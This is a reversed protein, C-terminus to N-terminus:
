EEYKVTITIIRPGDKTVKGWSGTKIAAGTQEKADKLIYQYDLDTFLSECVESYVEDTACRLYVYRKGNQAAEITQKELIDMAEDYTTAYYGEMIHFNLDMSDAVPTEFYPSVYAQKHDSLLTERDILFYDYGVYEKDEKGAPDDWTPDLYYWHGDDCLVLNWKHTVAESDGVGTEYLTEFGANALLLQMADAYGQCTARKDVLAGYATFPAVGESNEDYTCNLILYEYLYKIKEYNSGDPMGAIIKDIEDFLAQNRAQAEEASDVTYNLAIGSIYNDSDYYLKYKNSVYGYATTCNSVLDLFKLYDDRPVGPTLSIYSRFNMIANMVETFQTKVSEDLREYIYELGNDEVFQTSLEVAPNESDQQATSGPTGGSPLTADSNDDVTKGCGALALSAALFLATLKKALNNKM